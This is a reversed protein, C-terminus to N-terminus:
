RAAVNERSVLRGTAMEFLLHEHPVTAMCFEWMKDAEDPLSINGCKSRDYKAVVTEILLSHEDRSLRADGYWYAMSTTATTRSLDAVAKLLYRAVEKGADGLIVVVPANPDHNNGYYFDIMAVGSGDNTVLLERPLEPLTRTWVHRVVRGNRYLSARKRGNVEVFYNRNASYFRKTQFTSYSDALINGALILSTLVLIISTKLKM